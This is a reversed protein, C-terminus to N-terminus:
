SNALRSAQQTILDVLQQFQVTMQLTLQQIQGQMHQMETKLVANDSNVQEFRTNMETRLDTIEGDVQEFRNDIQEFRNDMQEFRNDVQEFRSDMKSELRKVDSKIERIDRHMATQGSLIHATNQKVSGMEDFIREVQRVTISDKEGFDDWDKRLNEVHKGKKKRHAMKSIHIKIIHIYIM